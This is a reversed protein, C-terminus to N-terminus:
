SQERDECGMCGAGLANCLLVAFVFCVEETGQHGVIRKLQGNRMWDADKSMDRRQWNTAPVDIMEHHSHM